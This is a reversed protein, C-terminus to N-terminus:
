ETCALKAELNVRNTAQDLKTQLVSTRASYVLQSERPLAAINTFYERATITFDKMAQQFAPAKVLGKIIEVEQADLTNIGEKEVKSDYKVAILQL